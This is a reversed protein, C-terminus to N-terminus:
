GVEQYDAMEFVWEMDGPEDGNKPLPANKIWATGSSVVYGSNLDKVQLPRVGNNFVRDAAHIGRLVANQPHMSPLTLKCSIVSTRNHIRTVFGGGEKTTFSDPRSDFEIAVDEAVSEGFSFKVRYKSYTGLMLRESERPHGGQPDRRQRPM